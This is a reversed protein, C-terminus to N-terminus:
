STEKSLYELVAELIAEDRFDLEFNGDVVNRSEKWFAVALAALKVLARDEISVASWALGRDRGIVTRLIGVLADVTSATERFAVGQVFVQLRGETM